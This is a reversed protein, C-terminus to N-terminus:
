SVYEAVVRVHSTKMLDEGVPVSRERLRTTFNLSVSYQVGRRLRFTVDGHRADPRVREYVRDGNSAVRLWELTGGASRDWELHVRGGRDSVFNVSALSVSFMRMGCDSRKDNALRVFHEANYALREFSEGDFAAIGSATSEYRGHASIEGSGDTANFRAEGRATRRGSTSTLTKSEGDNHPNQAFGCTASPGGYAYGGISVEGDIVPEAAAPSAPVVLACAAAIAIAVATQGRLM